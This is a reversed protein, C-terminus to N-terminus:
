KLEEKLQLAREYIATGPIGQSEMDNKWSDVVPELISKWEKLDEETLYIIEAGSEEAKQLGIEGDADYVSGAKAALDVGLYKELNEQDELSFTEYVDENMAIFFPTSSMNAITVYKTVEYFGFNYLTELPVLAVDIVGRELSEYVDSMPMSVPTAGLGKLIENGLPSPTRVRLGKLDEPKEIKHSKSIFQAPEATFLTLIKTDSHEKQIEPFEEYLSAMIKSGHEASETLFPLEMVSVSPFRGPTYGHVSVSIDSEGTVAMDYHSGADGLANAPFYEFNITELAGKNYNDMLEPFTKEQLPHSAPLFHSVMLNREASKSSKDSENEDGNCAVLILM